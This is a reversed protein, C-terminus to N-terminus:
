NETNFFRSLRQVLDYLHEDRYRYPIKLSKGLENETFHSNSHHGWCRGDSYYYGIEVGDLYIPYRKDMGVAKTPTGHTIEM